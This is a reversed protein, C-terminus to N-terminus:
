TCGTCIELGYLGCIGTRRSFIGSCMIGLPPIDIHIQESQFGAALHADTITRCRRHCQGDDRWIVHQPKVPNELLRLCVVPFGGLWATYRVIGRCLRFGLHSGFVLYWIACPLCLCNGDQPGNTFAGRGAVWPKSTDHLRGTNEGNSGYPISGSYQM